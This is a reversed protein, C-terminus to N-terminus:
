SPGSSTWTTPRFALLVWGAFNTTKKTFSLLAGTSTGALYFRSHQQACLELLFNLHARNRHFIARRNVVFVPSLARDYGKRVSPRQTGICPISLHQEQGLISESHNRMIPTAM